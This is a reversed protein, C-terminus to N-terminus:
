PLRGAVVLVAGDNLPLALAVVPAPRRQSAAAAVVLATGTASSLISAVFLANATVTRSEGETALADTDVWPRTGADFAVQSRRAADANSIGGAVLLGGAGLLSGGAVAAAVEPGPAGARKDGAELRELRRQADAVQAAYLEDDAVEAVFLRLDAAARDNRKVCGSLLGRWYLLYPEQTAEFSRGLEDVSSLIATTAERAIRSDPDDVEVCATGQLEAARAATAERAAKMPEGSSSRPAAVVLLLVCATGLM